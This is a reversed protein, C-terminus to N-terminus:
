EEGEPLLIVRAYRDARLYRRAAAAVDDLTVADLRQEFRNIVSFEEGTEVVARIQNLWFHNTRVQEERGSRLLEKATDLYSQEGGAQLWEVEAFVADLLEGAREPDSDFAVWVEYEPDPQAQGGGGAGYSYTGGLEERISERLRIELIDGLLVLTLSESRSWEMEGAFVLFTTSLPELGRRVTEDVVGPPPDIGVDRWRERRGTAPLAALYAESLARLEEWDFAGTFIFTFDGFDAFREEYVARSRELSLEELLEETLPRARFHDQAMVSRLRDRFVAQPSADRNEIQSRLRSRFSAFYTSDFRPATAYLTVLQFLTELDRPSAQGNLGEYLEGIAPAVSVNKGALLKDLAVQDHVGAGSGTAIMAATFAALYDEDPVLSDGGPSLAAMLVEDNRFDTQKAIVTVGNSLTWEVADIAELRREATIAGPEPMRALLPADGTLDEYPAVARTAAGALQERLAAELAANAAETAGPDVGAAEAAAASIGAPGSVLLVVNGPEAWLDAVADVEATGIQPLLEGVLRYEVELGPVMEGELFHRLYEAALRGSPRQDREQYASEIGSMQNAKARALETDTFGHLQARRLEELVVDLGRAVGDESVRAGAVLVASEGALAGRGASAGIYPPDAVERREFLRQNIMAGYLGDVVLRRYAALDQGTAAPLKRYLTFSAGSAEPDTVVSVRAELHDPIEFQPREVPPGARRARAYEAAGQPPPAFHRHIAEEIRAADFDGVAVVAMLEPRYWADAFQRLGEPTAGAIVEPLGIPLRESYRSDGFLVPLQRDRIRASAGRGSRWEEMIVDREQVVEEPEFTMAYAWDSLIEFATEIVQEDATPIELQYVTEDFSTYANLDPGFGSGLSELYDIIEQKAFRATGNFAMHEVFHAFGRQAEQELISGVRIALRLQARNLPEANRRVYYVLGNSLTGRRVAPDFPLEAGAALGAPQAPAAAAALGLVLLLAPAALAALPRRLALPHNLSVVDLYRGVRAADGAGSGRGVASGSQPRPRRKVRAGTHLM